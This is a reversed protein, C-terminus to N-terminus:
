SIIQELVGIIKQDLHQFGTLKWKVPKEPTYIYKELHNSNKTLLHKRSSPDQRTASVAATMLYSPYDRTPQLENHSLKQWGNWIWSLKPQITPLRATPFPSTYPLSPWIDFVKFTSANKARCKWYFLMCSKLLKQHRECVGLCFAFGFAIFARKYRFRTLTM